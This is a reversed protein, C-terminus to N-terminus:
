ISCQFCRCQHCVKCDQRSLDCCLIQQLADYGSTSAPKTCGANIGDVRPARVRFCGLGLIDGECLSEVGSGYSNIELRPISVDAYMTVRLYRPVAVLKATRFLAPQSVRPQHLRRLYVGLGWRGCRLVPIFSTLVM